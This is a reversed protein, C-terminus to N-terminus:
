DPLIRDVIEFGLYEQAIKPLRGFLGRFFAKLRAFFGANVKVTEVESEALVSGDKVYKAQVTFNKKAEKVTYTEGAGKDEGDIFWHTEAGSVSTGVVATFTITTRYDVTKEATYNRIAIGSSSPTSGDKEFKATLSRNATAHFKYEEGTYVVSGNEYWGVFHWGADAHAILTVLDNYRFDDNGGSVTGGEGVSTNIRFTKRAFEVKITCDKELNFQYTSSNGVWEVVAGDRLWRVIEYGENPTATLVIKTWFPYTGGHTITGGQTAETTVTYNKKTFKATLTIDGTGEPVKFGFARAGALANGQYYWGYFDYGLNPSAEFGITDGVYYYSANKDWAQDVGEVSTVGYAQGSKEPEVTVYIKRTPAMKFHATCRTEDTLTLTITAGTYTKTTTSGSASTTVVTWYDFAYHRAPAATLTVSKGYSYSNGSTAGTVTGASSPSCSFYLHYWGASPLYDSMTTDSQLSPIILAPRVGLCTKGALDTSGLKGYDDVKCAKNSADGGTRLWWDTYAWNTSPGMYLGQCKAYDTGRTKRADNNSFYSSNNAESYSLLFAFTDYDESETQLYKSNRAENNLLKHRLKGIQSSTFAVPVFGQCWQNSITSRTYNCAYKTGNVANYYESNSSNKWVVDQFPQSDILKNSVVLGTNPDLVRWDLPEYKFYYVTNIKYGNEDQCSYSSEALYGTRTPRYYTFKVARYKESGVFFDAYQMYDSQQMEGNSDNGTGSYYKYSAWRANAAAVKLAATEDVKTQPYNGFQIIDGAKVASSPITLAVLGTLTLMVSLLVCLIRKTTKMKPVETKM